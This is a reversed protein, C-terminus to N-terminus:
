RGTRRWRGLAQVATALAERMEVHDPDHEYVFDGDVFVTDGHEDRAHETPGGLARLATEARSLVTRVETLARSTERGRDAM